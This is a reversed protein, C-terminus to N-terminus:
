FFCQGDGRYTTVEDVVEGKRVLVCRAFREALEGAKAHRFFLPDGLAVHVGPPLLLPTQVEGAGEHALLEMGLPFAPSPLRDAGAPGSAVYGGFGCTVIDARPRRTASLAFFLAPLYQFDRFHDFLAPAYLGSGAALESVSPDQATSAL